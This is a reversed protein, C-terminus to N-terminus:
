LEVNVRSVSASKVTEGITCKNINIVEAAKVGMELDEDLSPTQM